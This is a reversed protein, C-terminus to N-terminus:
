DARGSWTQLPELMPMRRDEDVAGLVTEACYLLLRLDGVSLHRAMNELHADAPLGDCAEVLDQVERLGMSEESERIRWSTGDPSAPALLNASM